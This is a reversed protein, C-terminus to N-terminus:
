KRKKKIFHIKSRYSTRECPHSPRSMTAYTSDNKGFIFVCYLEDDSNESLLCTKNRQESKGFGAWIMLRIM